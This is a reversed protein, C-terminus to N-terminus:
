AARLLFALAGTLSGTMRLPRGLVRLCAYTGGVNFSTPGTPESVWLPLPVMASATM